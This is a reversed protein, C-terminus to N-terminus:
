AVARIRRRAPSAPDRRVERLLRLTAQDSASGDPGTCTLKYTYSGASAPTVTTYNTPSTGGNEAGSWAGSAICVPANTSSWIVTASQGLAISTPTAEVTVSPAGGGSTVTLPASNASTGGPGTCTLTYTYPGASSPAVVATQNTGTPESGSWSGSATCATANTTSWTVTASGGIQISIPSVSISISPASGTPTSGSSPVTLTVAVSQLGASESQPVAMNTSFGKFTITAAYTGPSLGTPDATVTANASQSQALSANPLSVSLWGTGNAYSPTETLNGLISGATGNNTITVQGTTNSTTLSVAGSVGLQALPDWLITFTADPQGASLTQSPGPFISVANAFSPLHWLAGLVIFVGIIFFIGVRKNM